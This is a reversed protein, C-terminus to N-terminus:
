AATDRAGEASPPLRAAKARDANGDHRRVGLGGSDSGAGAMTSVVLIREPLVRAPRIAGAAIGSNRVGSLDALATRHSVIWYGDAFSAAFGLSLRTDPAAGSAA